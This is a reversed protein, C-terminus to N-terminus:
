RKETRQSTRGAGNIFKIFLYNFFDFTFKEINEYKSFKFTYFQM